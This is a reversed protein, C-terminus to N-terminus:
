ADVPTWEGGSGHYTDVSLRFRKGCAPCLFTHEVVDVPWPRGPGLDDLRANGGVLLLRREAIMERVDDLVAFYERPTRISIKHDFEDCQECMNIGLMAHGDM